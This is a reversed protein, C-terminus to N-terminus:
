EKNIYDEFDKASLPKSFYYGQFQECGMKSLFETQEKTEVGEVVLDIKLKKAVLIIGEVLIQNFNNEVIDDIFGKDMKIESIPYDKLYSLSSYGKGFDDISIKFGYDHFSNLMSQSQEKDVIMSNETMELSIKNSSIGYQEIISNFEFPLQSNMLQKPSLNISLSIMNGKEHWKSLQKVAELMVWKGLRHIEGTEEALSIFIEPSVYGFLPSKWRCLVEASHKNMGNKDILIKPQYVLYFENNDLAVALANKMKNLTTLKKTLENEYVFLMQDQLKSEYMALEAFKFLEEATHGHEPYVAVGVKNRITFIEEKIIFPAKLIENFHEEIENLQQAFNESNLNAANLFVLFEDGGARAISDFLCPVKSMLRVAYEQLLIDGATHGLEDNIRKFGQIDICLVYVREKDTRISKIKLDLEQNIKNRNYLQTLSDHWGLHKVKNLMESAVSYAKQNSSLLVLLSIILLYIVGSGLISIMIINQSFLINADNSGFTRSVFQNDDWNILIDSYITPVVNTQYSNEFVIRNENLYIIQYFVNDKTTLPNVFPAKKDLILGVVGITATSNENLIPLNISINNDDIFTTKVKDETNKKNIVICHTTLCKPNVTNEIVKRTNIVKYDKPNNFYVVFVQKIGNDFYPLKEVYKQLKVNNISQETQLFARVGHLVSDYHIINEKINSTIVNGDKTAQWTTKERVNNTLYTFIILGAILSGLLAGLSKKYDWGKNMYEEILKVM